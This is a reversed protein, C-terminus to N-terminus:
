YSQFEAIEASKVVLATLAPILDVGQGAISSTSKPNSYIEWAANLLDGLSMPKQTPVCNSFCALALSEDEANLCPGVKTEVHTRARDFAEVAMKMVAIDVIDVVFEMQGPPKPEESFRKEYDPVDIGLKAGFEKLLNARTRTSPYTGDRSGSLTPAILYDFACIYSKGFICLGIFDCFIEEIQHLALRSAESIIPQVLMDTRFDCNAINPFVLNFDSQRSELVGIIAQEAIGNFFMRLSLSAWINHGLEHGAAPFILANESESAPLGILIYNPLIQLGFPYTFPSFNWDSSLILKVDDSVLKRALSIFPFYLEFINRKSTSRSMFGLLETAFTIQSNSEILLSSRLSESYSAFNELRMLSKRLVTELEVVASRSDSNPFELGAVVEAQSKLRALKWRVNIVPDVLSVTGM